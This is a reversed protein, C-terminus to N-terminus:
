VFERAKNRQEVFKVRPIKETEIVRKKTERYIENIIEPFNTHIYNEMPRSQRSETKSWAVPDYKIRHIENVNKVIEILIDIYRVFEMSERNKGKKTYAMYYKKAEAFKSIIDDVYKQVNMESFLTNFYNNSAYDPVPYDIESYFPNNHTKIGALQPRFAGLFRFVDAHGYYIKEQPKIARLGPDLIVFNSTGQIKNLIDVMMMSPITPLFEYLKSHIMSKDFTSFDPIQLTQMIRGIKDHKKKIKKAEVGIYKKLENLLRDHEEIQFLKERFRDRDYQVYLKHITDITFHSYM